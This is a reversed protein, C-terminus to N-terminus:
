KIQRYTGNRELNNPNIRPDNSYFIKDNSDMWVHDYMYDTELERGTSPNVRREVGRIVDTWDSMSKSQADRRNQLVKQQSDFMQRQQKISSQMANWRRNQDAIMDQTAQQRRRNVENQWAPDPSNLSQEFKRMEPSPSVGEASVFGSQVDAESYNNFQVMLQWNCTKMRVSGMGGGQGMQYTPMDLQMPYYITMVSVCLFRRGKEDDYKLVANRCDLYPKLMGGANPMQRWTADIMQAYQDIFKQETWERVPEINSLHLSKVINQLEAAASQPKKKMAEPIQNFAAQFYPPINSGEYEIDTYSKVPLRACWLGSEPHRLMFALYFEGIAGHSANPVFEFGDPVYVKGWQMNLLPDMIVMEASWAPVTFFNLLLGFVFFKFCRM